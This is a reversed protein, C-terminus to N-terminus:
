LELNKINIEVFDKEFFSIDTDEKKFPEETPYYFCLKRKKEKIEKVIGYLDQYMNPSVIIYVSDSTDRKKLFEYNSLINGPNKSLDVRALAKYVNMLEGRGTSIEREICEDTILDRGNSSLTVFVGSSVFFELLRAVIDFCCEVAKEKKLVGNDEVDLLIKVDPSSTYNHENVMFHDNKASAKWNIDKMSDFPQYERIGKFEFPDTSFNRKTIIDGNLTKLSHDFIDSHFPKPIVYINENIKKKEVFELTLFLDSAILEMSEVVYYGRKGAVFSITRTIKENGKVHFIDNRYYFDTSKSGTENDFKLNRSTRFKVKLMSLPLKKRNEIVETLSSKDGRTVTGSRFKIDARIGKSWNKKYFNGQIIYLLGALLGIVFIQLM